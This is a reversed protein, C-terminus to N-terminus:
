SWAVKWSANHSVKRGRYLTYCVWKMTTPLYTAHQLQGWHETAIDSKRWERLYWIAYTIMKLYNHLKCVSTLKICSYNTPTTRITESYSLSICFNNCGDGGGRSHEFNRASRSSKNLCTFAAHTMHHFFSRQSKGVVWSRGGRVGRVM